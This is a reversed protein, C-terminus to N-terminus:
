EKEVIRGELKSDIVQAKLVYEMFAERVLMGMDHVKLKKKLAAMMDNGEALYDITAVRYIRDPSIPEGGVTASVLQGDPTIELRVSHSVAEGHVSAINRMLEMLDSGKMEVVVVKNEFPSIQIIDGRRVIGEPMSNRLGGVNMLGMDAREMGTATSTEVLVDAAWNGLLSEPRKGSMARRSLGLPPMMVSDVRAKYPEVIAQAEADPELDLRKTVEIREWAFSRVKYKMRAQEREAYGLSSQSQEREGAAKYKQSMLTGPLLALCCLLTVKRM